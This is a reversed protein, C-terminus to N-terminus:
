RSVAPSKQGSGDAIARASPVRSVAFLGAVIFAFGVVSRGSLREHLFIAALLAATLPQMTTYTAVLSPSSRRVSWTNIAYNLATPVLVIYAIQWPISPPWGETSVDRWSPISVLLVGIGGLAFSWGIVTLPPLRKLMPRQLVLFFAYALCNLLLLLNGFTAGSGFTFRGPDLMVLAGLVALGIGMARRADLREIGLLAAAAAAFVPISVMLIGANTATTLKLGYIFLMQNVFVGLFGLLALRPFDQRSPLRREFIAAMLLLLPAAALVRMSGLVLPPVHYLVSKGVVHFGGFTIQVFVQALHVAWGAGVVGVAGVGVAGM